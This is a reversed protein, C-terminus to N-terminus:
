PTHPASRPPSSAARSRRGPADAGSREASASTCRRRSGKRRRADTNRWKTPGGAVRGMCSAHRLLAEPGIRPTRRPCSAGTDRTASLGARSEARVPWRAFGERWCAAKGPEAAHRGGARLLPRYALCPAQLVPWVRHLCSVPIPLSLHLRSLRELATTARGLPQEGLHGLRAPVGDASDRIR